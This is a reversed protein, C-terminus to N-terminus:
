ETPVIIDGKAMRGVTFRSLDREFGYTVDFWASFSVEPLPNPWTCIFANGRHVFVPPQDPLAFPCPDDRLNFGSADWLSTLRVEHVWVSAGKSEVRISGQGSGVLGDIQFDVEVAARTAAAADRAAEAAHEAALASRRAHYGARGNMILSAVAAAAVVATAIMTTLIVADAALVVAEKSEEV